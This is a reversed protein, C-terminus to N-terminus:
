ASYINKESFERDIEIIKKALSENDKLGFHEVLLQAVNKSKVKERLGYLRHGLLNGSAVMTKNISLALEM